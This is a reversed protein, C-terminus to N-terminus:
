REYMLQQDAGPARTHGPRIVHSALFAIALISANSRVGTLRELTSDIRECVGHLHRQTGLAAVDDEVLLEAGRRDRVIAHGDRTLDLQVVGVLVHPRLEGLLDGGLGVVHRAVAGGGGGHQGLRHDPLAKAVDRGAGVRHGELAPDVRRDLGDGITSRERAVSTASRLSIAWTAAM